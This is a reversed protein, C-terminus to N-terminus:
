VVKSFLSGRNSESNGYAAVARPSVQNVHHSTENPGDDKLLQEIVNNIGTSSIENGEGDKEQQIKELRAQTEMRTAAAAVLRDQSSPNVPASAARRIAQAKAITAEPDGPVPSLDISVEGGVAYHRGDPGVQTTFSVGGAYKGAAATHAQEHQRVERDRAQLAEVQKKEQTNIPGSAKISTDNSGEENAELHTKETRRDGPNQVDTKKLVAESRSEGALIDKNNFVSGKISSSIEVVDRVEEVSTGSHKHDKKPTSRNEGAKNLNSVNNLFSTIHSIM